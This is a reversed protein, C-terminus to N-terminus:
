GAVWVDIHVLYPFLYFIIWMCTWLYWLTRFKLKFFIIKSRLIKPLEWFAGSLDGAANPTISLGMVQAKLSSETLFQAHDFWIQFTLGGQSLYVSIWRSLSEKKSNYQWRLSLVWGAEKGERKWIDSKCWVSPKRPKRRKIRWLMEGLRDKEYRIWNSTQKKSSGFQCLFISCTTEKGLAMGM